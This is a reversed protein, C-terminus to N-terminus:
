WFVLMPVFLLEQVFFVSKKSIARSNKCILFFLMFFRLLVWQSNGATPWSGMWDSNSMNRDMVPQDFSWKKWDNALQNVMSKFRKQFFIGTMKPHYFALNWRHYRASNHDNVMQVTRLKQPYSGWTALGQLNWHSRSTIDYSLKDLDYRM